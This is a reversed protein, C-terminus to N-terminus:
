IPILNGKKVATKQKVIKELLGAIAETRRTSLSFASLTKHRVNHTFIDSPCIISNM